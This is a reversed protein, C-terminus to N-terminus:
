VRGWDGVWAYEHFALKPFWFLNWFSFLRLIFRNSSVRFLIWDFWLLFNPLFWGLTSNCYWSLMDTIQKQCWVWLVLWLNSMFRAFWYFWHICGLVPLLHWIVVGLHISCFYISLPSLWSPSDVRLIHGSGGHFQNLFAMFPRLTVRLLDHKLKIFRIVECLLLGHISTLDWTFLLTETICISRPIYSCIHDM